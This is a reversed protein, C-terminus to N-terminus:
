LITSSDTFFAVSAFFIKRYHWVLNLYHRLEIEEEYANEEHQASPLAQADLGAAARLIKKRHGLSAVGLKELDTEDLDQLMELDIEHQAFLEAYQGLNLGELWRRIDM